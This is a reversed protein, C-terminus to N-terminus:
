VELSLRIIETGKLHVNLKWTHPSCECRVPLMEGSETTAYLVSNSDNHRVFVTLETDGSGQVTLKAGQEDERLDIVDTENDATMIGVNDSLTIMHMKDRNVSVEIGQDGWLLATGVPASSEEWWNINLTYIVRLGDERDYVTFGIDPSGALWGRKREMEMISAGFSHLVQEYWGRVRQDAPYAKANVYLVKGKGFLHELILPDGSVSTMLVTATLKELSGIELTEGTDLKTSQYGTIEAGILQQIDSSDVLTPADGFADPRSTSAYLHPLGILLTGGERVYRIWKQIQSADATNWGLFAMYAYSGLIQDDAEVPVIDAIGYPTGTYYGTSEAPCPHKYIPALVSRPYFVNLLDWSKEPASFAWEDGNQAWVNRRGFCTWGDNQGHLFAMPGHLRGRRTHTRVFRYFNRQEDTHRRCAVSFRELDAFREELRWLGEETNIQDVGHMYCLYLALRYRRYRQETDHPTTSWQVALHAGFSDRGYARSAGRLASIIIEHPGYMLEAGQWSVGAQYLYKFLVSPGTHRSAYHPVLGVNKVFQLAAQEMDTAAHPDLNYYIGHPTRVPIQFVINGELRSMRSLLDYYFEREVGSRAGWYSSVGDREHAQSGLFNPGALIKREPNVGSGPLERSEVILAYQLGLKECLEKTQIWDRERLSRTGSWRYVPRFTAMNGIQQNMYWAFFYTMEEADAPIYVADSTGTLVHDDDREVSREVTDSWSGFETCLEITASGGAREAFFRIENIGKCETTFESQEPRIHTGGSVSVQVQIGPKGLQVWVSFAEGATVIDPCSVIGFDCPRSVFEVSRLKYPLPDRYDSQLTITMEHNGSHLIGHPIEFESVPWRYIRQFREGEFVTQGDIDVRFSVWEKKSLNRGLWSFSPSFPVAPAFPPLLNCFGEAQLCPDELWVNGSYDCGTVHILLCALKGEVPIVVNKKEWGCTGAGIDIRYTADPVESIDRPHKGEKIYFVEAVMELSGGQLLEVQEKKCWVSMELSKVGANRIEPLEGEVENWVVKTYAERPYDEGESRLDLSFRSHHTVSECLSDDILRYLPPHNQETMWIPPLDIEGTLRLRYSRGESANWGIDNGSFRLSVSKGARLYRYDEHTIIGEGSFCREPLQYLREFGYESHGVADLSRKNKEISPNM